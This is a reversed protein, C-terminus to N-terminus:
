AEIKVNEPQVELSTNSEMEVQQIWVAYDNPYIKRGKHQANAKTFAAGFYLIIASYYVWLLILVISGAAGYASSINKSGLYFGILFKGAMFLAATTFAGARVDRWEIKADPLMKFIIGFLFSTVFFTLLVNVVYALYVQIEPFYAQIQKFLLDLLANALLSVLLIFALSIIMSFSLLRNTLIKLWGKKPKTKLRWIYNISDQIEGFVGTAALILTVVGIVSAWTVDTSLSANKILEQIEVAASQGVFDEIQKNLTGEIAQRRLFIDCFRIVIILMPALSFVTYYALAASM